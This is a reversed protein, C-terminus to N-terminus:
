KLVLVPIHSWNDSARIDALLEFGNRGPLLLDLVIADVRSGSLIRVAESANAAALLLHGEALLTDTVLQRNEPDDDVILIRLAGETKLTKRVAHILSGKSLPKTLCEAAGLAKGMKREDVHSVIIVPITVTEPATTLEHLTEWGSKGALEMDLLILDPRLDRAKQFAAASSGAITIGFGERELLQCIEERCAPNHSTVLVLPAAPVTVDAAGPEQDASQESTVPLTFFFRSGKGPESELWIRGGHHEVLRKTIALGLGTGERVGRTSASAQRFSEFVAQHDEPTIGIGTDGVLIRVSGKEVVSEIWIHGGAPTFKIANSLLNYLIEKFRLRDAQLILTTDLSSDIVISKAAALPRISTLVEAVAVAMAFPELRLEL